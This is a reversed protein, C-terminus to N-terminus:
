GVVKSGLHRGGNAGDIMGLFTSEYHSAATRVSRWSMHRKQM